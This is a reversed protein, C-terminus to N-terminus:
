VDLRRKVLEVVCWDKAERLTDHTYHYPKPAKEQGRPQVGIYPVPVTAKFEGEETEVIFAAYYDEGQADKRTYTYFPKSDEGFKHPAHEQWTV